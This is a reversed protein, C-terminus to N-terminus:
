PGANIQTQVEFTEGPEVSADGPQRAPRATCSESGIHQM